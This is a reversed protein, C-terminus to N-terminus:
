RRSKVVTQFKLNLQCTNQHTQVNWELRAHKGCCAEFSSSFDVVEDCCDSHNRRSHFPGVKQYCGSFNGVSHLSAEDAVWEEVAGTCSASDLDTCSVATCALTMHNRATSAIWCHIDSALSYIEAFCNSGGEVEGAGAAVGVSECAM